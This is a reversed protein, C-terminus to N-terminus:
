HRGPPGLAEAFPVEIMHGDDDSVIEVRGSLDLRGTNVLDDCLIGRIGCLAADYAEALSGLAQGDPDPIVEGLRHINLHFLAV